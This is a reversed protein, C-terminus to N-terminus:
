GSATGGHFADLPSQDFFYVIVDKPEVNYAEAVTKTIGAAAKEKLEQPRPFALVKIFIRLNEADTGYKGAHAYYYNNASFYYITVIKPSIEYASCLSNTMGQTAIAKIEQDDTHDYVEIFPM